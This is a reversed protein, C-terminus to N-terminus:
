CCGARGFNRLQLVREVGGLRPYRGQSGLGRCECGQQRVILIGERDQKVLKTWVSVGLCVSYKHQMLVILTEEFLFASRAHLQPQFM